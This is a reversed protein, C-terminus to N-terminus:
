DATPVGQAIERRFSYGRYYQAYLDNNTAATYLFSACLVNANTLPIPIRAITAVLYSVRNLFTLRVPVFHAFLTYLLQQSSFTQIPILLGIPYARANALRLLRTAMITQLIRATEYSGTTTGALGVLDGTPNESVSLQLKGNPQSSM